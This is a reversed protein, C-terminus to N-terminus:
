LAARLGTIVQTFGFAGIALASVASLTQMFTGSMKKRLAATLGSLCLWWAASGLFVGALMSGTAFWM